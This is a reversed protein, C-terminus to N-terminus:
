SWVNRRKWRRGILTRTEFPGEPSRLGPSIEDQLCRVAFAIDTAMPIGWGAAAPGDGQLALYIGAPVVMGGIAASIPLAAQRLSGLERNVIERKM